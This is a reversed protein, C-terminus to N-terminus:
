SRAKLSELRLYVASCQRIIYEEVEPLLECRPNANASVFNYKKNSANKDGRQLLLQSMSSKSSRKISETLHSSNISKGLAELLYCLGRQQNKLIDDYNILITLRKSTKLREIWTNHFYNWSDVGYKWNDVFNKQSAFYRGKENTMYDFYSRLVKVPDRYLLVSDYAGFKNTHYFHTKLAHFDVDLIEKHDFARLPPCIREITNFDLFKEDVGSVKCAYNGLVFRLWTSGSKPFSALIFDKKPNFSGIDERRSRLNKDLFLLVKNQFIPM